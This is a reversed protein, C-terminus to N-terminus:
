AKCRRCSYVLNEYDAALDFRLSQPQFHDIDFEGTVRGWQERVLCYACRFAFDDRLWPRYGDYRAYGRPGHRRHKRSAPYAFIM